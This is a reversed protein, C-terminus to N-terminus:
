VGGRRWLLNTAYRVADIFHNNKDPYASIIEGDKTKEYEYQIFEDASNVCPNNIIIKKLYQLWKISYKVSSGGNIAGKEAGRAYIGYKLYDSISKPESSDCIVLDDHTLGKEKLLIEATLENDNRYEKKEDIIYLIKEKPNYACKVYAWPDAAFGWDVGYYFQGFTNIENKTIDKVMINEFITAGTGTAEGLYEHRYARENESKLIEAEVFFSKGLWKKPFNYYYSHHVFKHENPKLMEKNIFHSRSIPTNYTRLFVAQESGARFASQRINRMSDVGEMQDAEECWLMNIKMGHPPRISKIKGPDNTARFYIIQGTSIKKIEYPSTKCHYQNTLDLEDICWKIQKYVSNGVDDYVNRLCMACSTPDSELEDIIVFGSFSSKGTGRGGKLDYQSYERDKISRYVDVWESGLVRAPLGTYSQQLEESQKKEDNWKYNYKLSFEAGRATDRNYLKIETNEELKLKARAITDSFEPKKSYENFGERSTFGLYYIFGSNTIPNGLETVYYDFYEDIKVQMEEKTKYMPPRGGKNKELDGV